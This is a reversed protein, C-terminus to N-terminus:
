GQEAVLQYYLGKKEMLEEHNGSEVIKKRDMVLIIDSDMVNHIRHAVVILTKGQKKLENLYGMIKNEMAVDLASTAEDLILVEPNGVLSRALAMRQREGGSINTGRDELLYNYQNDLGMIYEHINVARCIDMMSKESVTRGFLINNQISDYFMYSDQKCYAIISYLNKQNIKQVKYGNITIKGKDPYILSLLLKVITSKGSGSKGVIGVKMGQRIHFCIDELVYESDEHYRYYVHDFTVDHFRKIKVTQRNNKITKSIDHLRKIKSGVSSISVIESYAQEMSNILMSCLQYEVIYTSVALKGQMALYGGYVLVAFAVCWKLLNTMFFNLNGYRNIRKAENYYDNFYKGYRKKEWERRNNIIIERTASLGEEIIAHLTNTKDMYRGFQKWFLETFYKGIFVYVFGLILIFLFMQKNINILIVSIAILQIYYKCGIFKALIGEGIEGSYYTLLDIYYQKKEQKLEQLPCKNINCIVTDVVDWKIPNQIYLIGHYRLMISFVANLIIIVALILALHISLNLDAHTLADIVYKQMWVEGVGLFTSILLIIGMIILMSCIRARKIIWIFEDICKKMM